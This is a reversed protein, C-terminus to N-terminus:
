LQVSSHSPDRHHGFTVHSALRPFQSSLRKNGYQESTPQVYPSTIYIALTATSTLSPWRPQPPEHIITWYRLSSQWDASTLTNLLVESAKLTNNNLLKLFKPKQILVVSKVLLLQPTWCCNLIKSNNLLKYKTIWLLQRESECTLPIRLAWLISCNLHLECTICM